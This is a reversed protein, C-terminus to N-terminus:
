IEKIMNCWWSDLAQAGQCKRPGLGAEVYELNWVLKLPEKHM